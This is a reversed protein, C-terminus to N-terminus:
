PKKSYFLDLGEILRLFMRQFSAEDNWTSFDLIHYEMVQERLREPWTCSEWSDDIAIPCLVDRGTEKELRRALRVEHEVWDSEVSHVSLVLLVTPNMRIARDVQAELRGATAHHTDRWFRIGKWNLYGEFKNVFSSDAHSYSIFLPNIQIAQSARLGHITYLIDNIQENSLEPQHLKVTEIQWDSLGCGQLFAESIKGKSRKLTDTDIISPGSHVVRDLGDVDSLDTRCFITRGIHADAFRAKVLVADTFNAGQLDAHMLNTGILKASSFNVGNLNAMSLSASTLNTWGLNAGDLNAYNLSASQLDSGQLNAEMFNSARLYRNSLNTNALNAGQFYPRSLHNEKRWANWFDASAKLAKLHEKNAM